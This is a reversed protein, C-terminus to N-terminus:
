TSYASSATFCPDAAIPRRDFVWATRKVKFTLEAVQEVRCHLAYLQHMRLSRCSFESRVLLLEDPNIVMDTNGDSPQCTVGSDEPVEKKVM